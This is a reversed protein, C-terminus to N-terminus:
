GWKIWGLPVCYKLPKQGETSAPFAQNMRPQIQGRNGRGILNCDRFVQSLDLDM